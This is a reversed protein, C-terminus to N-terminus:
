NNIFRSQAFLNLDGDRRGAECRPNSAVCASLLSSLPILLSCPRETFPLILRDRGMIIFWDQLIPTINCASREHNQIWETIDVMLRTGNYIKTCREDRPRKHLYPIWITLIQRWWLEDIQRSRVLKQEKKESNACLRGTYSTTDGIQQFNGKWRSSGTIKKWRMTDKYRESNYRKARFIDRISAKVVNWQYKILSKLWACCNLWKKHRPISM